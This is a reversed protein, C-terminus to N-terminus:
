YGQPTNLAPSRDVATELNFAEASPRAAAHRQLGAAPAAVVVAAVVAPVHVPAPRAAVAVAEVVAQDAPALAVAVVVVRGGVAAM